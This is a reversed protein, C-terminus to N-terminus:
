DLYLFRNSALLVQSLAALARHAADAKPDQQAFHDRQAVLFKECIQL